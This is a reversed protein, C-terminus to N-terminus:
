RVKRWNTQVNPDGGLYEQGGYIHNKQYGGSTDAQPSNPTEMPTFGKSGVPLAANIGATEYKHRNQAANLILGQQAVIDNLVSDPQEKGSVINTLHGELRELASGPLDQILAPNMRRITNFGMLAANAMAPLNRSAATNGSKAAQVFQDVLDTASQVQALEGASKQFAGRLAAQAHIPDTAVAVAAAQQARAAIVRPDTETAITRERDSVNQVHRQIAENIGKLDPELKADNIARAYEAPYKAPDISGAVHAALSSPDSRLQNYLGLQGQLIQTQLDREKTQSGALLADANAKATDATTKPIELAAKQQALVKDTAAKLGGVQALWTDLQAPDTVQTPVGSTIGADKFANTAQLHQVAEPLASNIRGLDPKGDAGVLSKLGTATDVIRGLGESRLTNQESTNALLEKEHATQWATLAQLTKPQVRGAIPTVDGTMLRAYADPDKMTEQLTNQDALDRNRQQAEAQVNAANQQAAQVQANRLAIQSMADRVQMLQGINQLPSEPLPTKIALPITSM